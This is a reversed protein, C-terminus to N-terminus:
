ILAKELKQKAEDSELNALNLIQMTSVEFPIVSTEVLIPTIKLGSALAAGLEVMVWKSDNLDKPLIMIFDTSTKIQNVIDEAWKEGAKRSDSDMFITLGKEKLIDRIKYAYSQNNHSCSIFVKKNM